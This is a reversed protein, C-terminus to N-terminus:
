DHRKWVKQLIRKINQYQLLKINLIKIEKSSDICTNPMLRVWKLQVLYTNSYKNVMADLKYIYFYKSISTM